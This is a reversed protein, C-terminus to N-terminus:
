IRFGKGRLIVAEMKLNEESDQSRDTLCYDEEEKGDRVVLYLDISFAAHKGLEFNEPSAYPLFYKSNLFAEMRDNHFDAANNRCHLLNPGKFEQEHSFPENKGEDASFTTAFQTVRYFYEPNNAVVVKTKQTQM